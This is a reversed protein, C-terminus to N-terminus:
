KFKVKGKRYISYTGSSSVELVKQEKGFYKPILINFKINEYVPKTVIYNEISGKLVSKHKVYNTKSHRDLNNIRNRPRSKIYSEVSSSDATDNNDQTKMHSEVVSIPRSNNKIIQGNSKQRINKIRKRKEVYISDRHTRFSMLMYSYMEELEHREFKIRKINYFIIEFNNKIFGCNSFIFIILKFKYFDSFNDEPKYGKEILDYVNKYFLMGTERLFSQNKVVIQNLFDPNNILIKM